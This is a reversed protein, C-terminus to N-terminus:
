SPSIKILYNGIAGKPKVDSRTAWRKVILSIGWFTLVATDLLAPKFMSIKVVRYSFTVFWLFITTIPAIALGEKKIKIPGYKKEIKIEDFIHSGAKRKLNAKKNKIHLLEKEANKHITEVRKKEAKEQQKSKGFRM